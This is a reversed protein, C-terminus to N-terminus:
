MKYETEGDGVLGKGWKLLRVVVFYEARTWKM